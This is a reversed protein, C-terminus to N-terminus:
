EAKIRLFLRSNAELLVVPVEVAVEEVTPSVSTALPPDTVLTFAVCPDYITGTLGTGVAQPM